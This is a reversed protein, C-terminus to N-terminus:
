SGLAYLSNQPFIYAVCLTRVAALAKQYKLNQYNLGGSFSSFISNLALLFADRKFLEPSNAKILNKAM